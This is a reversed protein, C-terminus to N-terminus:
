FAINIKAGLQLPKGKQMYPKNLSEFYFATYDTGTLNKAWVYLSMIGRHVGAQANVVAYFPQTIGNEETWYIKGAGNCQASAGIHDILRSRLSKNYQLGISLTHQPTYPIYKGAYDEKANNYDLFKAHTYGYNLDATFQDSLRASLTLEAGYSEAKGANSLTRGSGSEVFRTIQLDRVDMYFLSLEARLRDEILESKAGAEYNWSTEPKYAIINKVPEPEKIEFDPPMFHRFANMVDFQLHSQMIDASMQVNYGGAKYGKAASLYAFTRPTFEYRLSVKPLAQRFSQTIKESIVSAPYNESLDIPPRTPAIQMSLNLKAESDYTLQQKEYDLRIGATISLGDTFLNNCTSQHYIAAGYSPMRFTGPIRLSENTITLRGPMGYDKLGDFVPQLITRIGDAKFEVPGETRANNYFGYAGFSWQYNRDHESKVSIEETFIHQKQLQNLVFLSSDSFDQDMKMDDNLSQYGTTSTLLINGNRYRLSLNNNLLSRKYSSPDNINVDDVKRTAQDYFGYPFAGQRTYEYAVSAAATLSPSVTLYLKLNGGGTNEGDAKRGNYTNTFFGDSHDYYAGASLGFSDGPKNYTAIKASVQGYNGCSLSAKTGQYQLPSLTHVNIIGGMANRGYLTGQPGRLVEIRQIDTLEFDFSSKDMYPAGDVYLGISQGSSRAGIGRIYVASTLKAGYDPMYLNPIFSSIDKISTVQRAAIQRPSLVSVSGPLTRLKNTEKSSSTVVIEDINCTKITDQEQKQPTEKEEAAVSGNTSIIGILSILLFLKKM